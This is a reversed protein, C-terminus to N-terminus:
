FGQASESMEEPGYECVQASKFQQIRLSSKLVARLAQVNSGHLFSSPSFNLGEGRGKSYSPKLLQVFLCAVSGKYSTRRGKRAGPRSLVIPFSLHHPYWFQVQYELLLHVMFEYLPSTM